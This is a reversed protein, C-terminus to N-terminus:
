PDPEIEERPLAELVLTPLETATQRESVLAKVDEMTEGNLRYLYQALLAETISQGGCELVVSSEDIVLRHFTVYFATEEEVDPLSAVVPLDPVDGLMWVDGAEVLEDPRDGVVVNNQSDIAKADCRDVRRAVIGGTYANAHTSTARDLTPELIEGQEICSSGFCLCVSIAALRVDSASHTM